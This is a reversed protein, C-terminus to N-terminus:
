SSSSQSGSQDLIQAHLPVVNAHRFRLQWKGGNQRWINTYRRRIEQGAQPGAKQVVTEAGMAVALDGDVEVREVDRDFRSFDILGAKILDLTADRGILVQNNPGNVLFDADWFDEIAAIDRELVAVREREELDRISTSSSPERSADRHTM